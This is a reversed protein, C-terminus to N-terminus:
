YTFIHKLLTSSGVEIELLHVSIQPPLFPLRIKGWGSCALVEYYFALTWSSGHRGKCKTVKKNKLQMYIHMYVWNPDLPCNLWEEPIPWFCTPHFARWQQSFSVLHRAYIIYSDKVYNLNPSIVGLFCFKLNWNHSISLNFAVSETYWIMDYWIMDYMLKHLATPVCPKVHIAQGHLKVYAQETGLATSHLSLNFLPCRSACGSACSSQQSLVPTWPRWKSSGMCVVCRM